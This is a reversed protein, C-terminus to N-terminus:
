FMPFEFPFGSLNKHKKNVMSSKRCWMFCCFLWLHNVSRFYRFIQSVRSTSTRPKLAVSSPQPTKEITVAQVTKETVTTVAPAAVSQNPQASQAVHDAPMVQEPVTELLTPRMTSFHESPRFDCIALKFNVFEEAIRCV